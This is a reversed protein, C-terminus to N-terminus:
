AIRLMPDCANAHDCMAEIAEYIDDQLVSNLGVMNTTNHAAANAFNVLIRLAAKKSLPKRVLDDDCREALMLLMTTANRADAERSGGIIDTLNKEGVSILARLVTLLSEKKTM